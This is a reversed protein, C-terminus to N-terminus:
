KLYHGFTIIKGSPGNKTLLIYVRQNTFDWRYYVTGDKKVHKVGTGTKCKERYSYAASTYTKINDYRNERIGHKDFHYDISAENSKFTSKTWSNILYSDLKRSGSMSKTRTSRKKASIEFKVTINQKYSTKLDWKIKGKKTDGPNVYFTDTKSIKGITATAVVKLQKSDLNMVIPFINYASASCDFAVDPNQYTTTTPDAVIPFASNEDFEISQTLTNGNIIYSTNVNNGNADKAWAPAIVGMVDVTERGDEEIVNDENVIYVYGAESDEDNYEESTMLQYGDPVNFNFSYNHPAESNEITLLSRIGELYVDGHQKQIGQVAASVNSNDDDYIIIDDDILKGEMAAFEKPLEMSLQEIEDSEITIESNGDEPITIDTDDIDIVFEGDEEYIDDIVDSTGTIDEIVSAIDEADELAIETDSKTPENHTETAFSLTPMLTVAMILSTLAAIIKKKM